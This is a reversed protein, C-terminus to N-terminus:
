CIRPLLDGSPLDLLRLSGLVTRLHVRGPPGDQVRGIAAADNAPSTPTAVTKTSGTDRPASAAWQAVLNRVEDVTAGTFTVSISGM